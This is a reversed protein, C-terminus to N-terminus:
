ELVGLVVTDVPCNAGFAAQAGAGQTMVVEKGPEVGLADAATLVGARTTVQVLTLGKMGDLHRGLTLVQTVTGAIM